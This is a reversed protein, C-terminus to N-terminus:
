DGRGVGGTALARGAFVRERPRRMALVLVLVVGGYTVIDGVSIVQTVPPPLAIVDALILLTDQPGALHHKVYADAHDALEAATAAQGSAELAAASVPMGGNVAIVAANMAIGVLIVRFGPVDRNALAFVGLLVFSGALMVLPWRGPPNVLQMAFGVLALGPWRLRLGALNSPRGGLAVGLVLALGLTLGIFTM